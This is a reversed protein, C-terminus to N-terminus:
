HLKTFNINSTTIEIKLIWISDDVSMQSKFFNDIETCMYQANAKTMETQLWLVGNHKIGVMRPPIMIIFHRGNHTILIRNQTIAINFVDTDGLGCMNLSAISVVDHGAQTLLVNAMKTINEDLLIKM